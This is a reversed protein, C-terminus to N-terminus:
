KLGSIVALILMLALSGWGKYSDIKEQARATARREARPTVLAYM